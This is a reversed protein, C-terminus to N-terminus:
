DEQIQDPAPAEDDIPSSATRLRGLTIPIQDPSDVEGYRILNMLRDRRAARLGDYITGAPTAELEQEFRIASPILEIPVIHEHEEFLRQQAECAEQFREAGMVHEIEERAAVQKTFQIPWFEIGAGNCAGQMSELNQLEDDIGVVRNIAGRCRRLVELLVHGKDLKGCYVIGDCAWAGSEFQSEGTLDLPIGCRRIDRVRLPAREYACATLFIVMHGQSILYSVLWTIMDDVTDKPAAYFAERLKLGTISGLFQRPTLGSMQQLLVGDVDIAFLFGGIKAALDCARVLDRVYPTVTIRTAFLRPTIVEPLATGPKPKHKQLLRLDASTSRKLDGIRHSLVSVPQGRVERRHGKEKPPLYAIIQARITEARTPQPTQRLLEWLQNQQRQV